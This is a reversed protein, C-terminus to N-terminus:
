RKNYDDVISCVLISDLLRYGHVNLHIRDDLFLSKNLEPEQGNWSIMPIYLVQSILDEERLMQQLAKRYEEIEYMGCGVMISKMFDSVIDKLPKYQNITWIDVNPIEIIIPRIHNELLLELILKYYYCFQRIGLNAAADNIGSAIICYDPCSLLISQTGYAGREFM